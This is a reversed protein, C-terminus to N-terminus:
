YKKKLRHKQSPTMDSTLELNVLEKPCHVSLITSFTLYFNSNNSLLFDFLDLLNFFLLILISLIFGLLPTKTM